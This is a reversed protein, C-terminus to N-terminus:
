YGAFTKRMLPESCLRHRPFGCRGANLTKIEAEPERRTLALGFMSLARGGQYVRRQRQKCGTEPQYRRVIKLGYPLGDFFAGGAPALIM